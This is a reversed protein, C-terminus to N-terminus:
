LIKMIGINPKLENLLIKMYSKKFKINIKSYELGGTYTEIFSFSLVLMDKLAKMKYIAEFLYEYNTYTGHLFVDREYKGDTLDNLVSLIICRVRSKYKEDYIDM